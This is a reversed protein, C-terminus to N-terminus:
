PNNNLAYNGVESGKQWFTIGSDYIKCIRNMDDAPVSGTVTCGVTKVYNWHPRSNRNPIKCRNTAYGFMNFYDDIMRAFDATVSCRGYYFNQYDAAVNVSGPNFSGNNLDASVSAQYSQSLLNGAAGVVGALAGIPNAMVAGAIVGTAAKTASDLLTPISNQAVWAKYADTNWSCTPYSSLKISETHLCELTGTPSGKYERPSLVVSVPQTINGYIMVKPTSDFLEYRLTLEGGSANDIHLFNYPYTYLKKNQPSYGDLKQTADTGPLTLPTMLGTAGFTLKHDSPITGVLTAPVMYIAVISDPSKLYEEIKQNVLQVGTSNANYAWLEAGGYVGDYMNGDVTDGATDVIAVIIDMATLDRVVQYDNFVYEGCSVPEPVINAGIEDTVAHEREVFCFDPSCDFFWTQMVDIEYSITSTENNVYEVETIFAYFWKTGFAANQFMIYNCDYLNDAKIGVRFTGKGVRQYSYLSLDYKKLGRFYTQQASASEFYITHDYTNDLPVNRLILINTGPEIYM